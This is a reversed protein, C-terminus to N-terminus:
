LVLITVSSMGFSVEQPLSVKRFHVAKSLTEM